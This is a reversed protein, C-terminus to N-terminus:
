LDFSSDPFTKRIRLHHINKKKERAFSNANMVRRYMGCYDTSNCGPQVFSSVLDPVSRPSHAPECVAARSSSHFSPLKRGTTHPVSLVATTGSRDNVLSVLPLLLITPDHFHCRLQVSWPPTTSTTTLPPSTLREGMQNGPRQKRM